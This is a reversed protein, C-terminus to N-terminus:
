SRGDTWRWVRTVGKFEYTLNPRNTNPNLLSTLQYRRGNEDVHSYQSLVKDSNYAAYVPNWTSRSVDRAYALITDHSTAFRTFALGKPQARLWVIENRFNRAGFVADLLAKLYHSATPDCHLYLSGTPKLIRHMEILRVAMMALYAMMKSGDFVTRFADLLSSAELHREAAEDV